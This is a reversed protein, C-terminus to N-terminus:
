LLEKNKIPNVRLHNLFYWWIYDVHTPYNML